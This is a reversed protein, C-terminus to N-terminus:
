NKSLCQNAVQKVIKDNTYIPGNAIKKGNQVKEDEEKLKRFKEMINEYDQPEDKFELDIGEFKDVQVLKGIDEQNLEKRSTQAQSVANQVKGKFLTNIIKTAIKFALKAGFFIFASGLVLSVFSLKRLETEVAEIENKLVSVLRSGAFLQNFIQNRVYEVINLIYFILNIFM